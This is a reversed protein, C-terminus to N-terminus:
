DGRLARQRDIAWAKYRRMWTEKCTGCFAIYKEYDQIAEERRGLCEFYYGRLYHYMKLGGIHILENMVHVGFDFARLLHIEKSLWEVDRFDRKDVANRVYQQLDDKSDEFDGERLHLLASWALIRGCDEQDAFQARIEARAVDIKGQLIRLLIVYFSIAQPDYGAELARGFHSEVGATKGQYLNAAGLIFFAHPDAESEVAHRAHIEAKLFEHRLFHCVAIYKRTQFSDPLLTLAKEFMEIAERIRGKKMKFVGYSYWGGPNAEDLEVSRKFYLEAGPDGKANLVHGKLYM